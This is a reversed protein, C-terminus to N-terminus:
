RITPPRGRWRRRRPGAARASSARARRLILDATERVDANTEERSNSTGLFGKCMLSGLFFCTVKRHLAGIAAADELGRLPAVLVKAGRGVAEGARKWVAREAEAVACLQVHVHLSRVLLLLLLLLSRRLRLVHGDIWRNHHRSGGGRRRDRKLRLLLVLLSRRGVVVVVLSEAAVAAVCSRRRHSSGAAAPATTGRLLMVVLLLLLLLGDEARM